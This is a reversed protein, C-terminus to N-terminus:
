SGELTVDPRQAAPTAALDPRNVYDDSGETLQAFTRPDQPNGASDLAVAGLDTTEEDTAVFLTVVRGTRGAGPDPLFETAPGVNVVDGSVTVNDGLGLDTLRDAPTHKGPHKDSTM